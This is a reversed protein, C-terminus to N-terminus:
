ESSGLNLITNDLMGALGTEGAGKQMIRTASERQSLNPSTRVIVKLAVLTFVYEGAKRIELHKAHHLIISSHAVLLEDYSGSAPTVSAKTLFIIWAMSYLTLSILNLEGPYNTIPPVLYCWQRNRATEPSSFLATGTILSPNEQVIKDWITALKEALSDQAKRLICPDQEQNSFIVPLLLLFDCILDYSTKTKNEFPITM